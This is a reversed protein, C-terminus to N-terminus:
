ATRDYSPEESRPDVREASLGSPHYEFEKGDNHAERKLAPHLSFM